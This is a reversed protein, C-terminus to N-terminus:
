HLSEYKSPENNSEYWEKYKLAWDIWKNRSQDMDKAEKLVKSFPRSPRFLKIIIALIYKVVKSVRYDDDRSLHLGKLVYQYALDHNNEKVYVRALGELAQICREDHSIALGYNKKANKIDELNEYAMGIKAYRFQKHTEKSLAVTEIEIVKKWEGKGFARASQLDSKFSASM